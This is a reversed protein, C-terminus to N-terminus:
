GMVQGHRQAAPLSYLDNSQLFGSSVKSNEEAPKMDRRTVFIIKGVAQSAKLEEFVQKGTAGTGGLLLATKLAASAM